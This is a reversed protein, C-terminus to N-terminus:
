NDVEQSHSPIQDKESITKNAIDELIKQFADPHEEFYAFARRLGELYEPSYIDTVNRSCNPCHWYPAVEETAEFYQMEEKCTCIM